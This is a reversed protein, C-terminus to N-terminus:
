HCGWPAFSEGARVYLEYAARLNGELTDLDYAVSFRHNRDIQMVGIYLGGAGRAQTDVTDKHGDRDTDVGSECQAIRIVDPWVNAPWPTGALAAELEAITAYRSRAPAPTPAPRPDVAPQLEPLASVPAESPKVEGPSEVAIPTAIVEPPSGAALQPEGAAAPAPPLAAAPEPPTAPAGSELV